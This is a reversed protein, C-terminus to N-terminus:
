RLSHRALTTRSNRSERKRMMDLPKGAKGADMQGNASVAKVMQEANQWAQGEKDWSALRTAM